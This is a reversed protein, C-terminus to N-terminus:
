WHAKREMKYYFRIFQHKSIFLLPSSFYWDFQCRDSFRCMSLKERSSNFYNKARAERKKIQWENGTIKEEDRIANFNNLLKDNNIRNSIILFYRDKPPRKMSYRSLNLFDCKLFFRHLLEHHQWDFLLKSKNTQKKEQFSKLSSQISVLEVISKDKKQKYRFKESNACNMIRLSNRLHNARISNSMRDFLNLIKM